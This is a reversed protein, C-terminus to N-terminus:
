GCMDGFNSLKDVFVRYTIWLCGLYASALILFLRCACLSNKISPSIFETPRHKGACVLPQIAQGYPRM